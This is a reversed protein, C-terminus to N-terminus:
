HQFGLSPFLFFNLLLCNSHNSIYKLTFFFECLISSYIFIACMIVVSILYWVFYKHNDAGVCNKVWPCHHDFRAVCVNCFTCHKSRLPRKVLCTYCYWASDFDSREALEIITKFKEERNSSIIGPDSKWTKYFSYVLLTSFGVCLILLWPPM